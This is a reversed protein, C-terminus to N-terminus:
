GMVAKLCGFRKQSITASPNDWLASKHLYKIRERERWFTFDCMARVMYRARNLFEM